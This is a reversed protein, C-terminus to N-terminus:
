LHSGPSCASQGLPSSNTETSWAHARVEVPLWAPHSRAQEVAFLWKEWSPLFYLLYYYFHHFLYADGSFILTPVVLGPLTFADRTTVWLLQVTTLM